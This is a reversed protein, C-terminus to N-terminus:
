CIVLSGIRVCGSILLCSLAFWPYKSVNCIWCGCGCRGGRDSGHGCYSRNESDRAEQLESKESVRLACVRVLFKVLVYSIEVVTMVRVSGSM